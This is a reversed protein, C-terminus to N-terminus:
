EKIVVPYNINKSFYKVIFFSPILSLLTIFATFIDSLSLIIKSIFLFFLVFIIPVGYFLLASNFAKNRYQKIIVKDGINFKDNCKITVEKEQIKCCSDCSSCMENILELKIIGNGVGKVIARNEIYDM